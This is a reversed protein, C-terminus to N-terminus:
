REITIDQSTSNSPGFHINPVTYFTNFTSIFIYHLNRAKCIQDWQCVSDSNRDRWLSSRQMTLSPPVYEPCKTYITLCINRLICLQTRLHCLPIQNTRCCNRKKIDISSTYCFSLKEWDFFHEFLVFLPSPTTRKKKYIVVVM